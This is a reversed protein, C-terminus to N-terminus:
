AVAVPAEEVVMAEAPALAPAEEAAPAEEEAVGKCLEDFKAALAQVGELREKASALTATLGAMRPEFTDLINQAANKAETAELLTNEAAIYEDQSQDRVGEAAKLAEEAATVAQARSAAESEGGALTEGLAAIHKTLLAETFEIAKEAFRGRQGPKGKAAAAFAGRLSPEDPSLTELAKTFEVIMKDRTRWEKGPFAGAKLQELKEGVLKEYEVKEEAVAKQESEFSAVKEQAATLAEKAAVAAAEAEKNAQEKADRAAIEAAEKETAAALASDAGDRETQAEAIQAEAAAVTAKREDEVGSIVSTLVGIMQEQYAHREGEPTRLSHPAMAALMERCSDPLEAMGLLELIPACEEPKEEAVIEKEVVAKRAKAKPGAAQAAGRKGM